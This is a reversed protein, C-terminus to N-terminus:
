RRNLRCQRSDNQFLFRETSGEAGYKETVRSQFNEERKFLLPHPQQSPRTVIITNYLDSESSPVFASRDDNKQAAYIQNRLVSERDVNSAYGAFPGRATTSPLFMYEQQYMPHQHILENTDIASRHIDVSPFKVQRTPAARSGFHHELTHSPINREYIRNNLEETREFGALYVIEPNSDRIILNKQNQQQYRQHNKQLSHPDTDSFM